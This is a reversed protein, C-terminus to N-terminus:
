SVVVSVRLWTRYTEMNNSGSSDDLRSLRAQLETLYAERDRRFAEETEEM